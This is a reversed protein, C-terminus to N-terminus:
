KLKKGSYLIPVLNSKCTYMKGWGKNQPMDTDKICSIHLSGKSPLLTYAAVPQTEM